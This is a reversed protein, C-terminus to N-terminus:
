ARAAVKGSLLEVAEGVTEITELEADAVEIGFREEIAMVTTVLDISDLGLDNFFNAEPTIRHADVQMRDVLVEELAKMTEDNQM